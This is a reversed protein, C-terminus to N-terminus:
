PRLTNTLVDLVIFGDREMDGSTSRQLTFQTTPLLRGAIGELFGESFTVPAPFGKPHYTASKTPKGLEAWTFVPM